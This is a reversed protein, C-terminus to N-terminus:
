LHKEWLARLEDLPEGLLTKGGAVGIQTFEAGLRGVREPPCALIVRARDPVDLEAGVGSWLAAEALAAEVGGDGVDHALSLLPAVRAVFRILAVEATLGEAHAAVIADGERWGRPVRRVDQVLGVCGVVPTPPIARGDTENYLSVNGSVVPVGLAEAAEAIGEIARALEWGIEPKEPNGFNLCDTLGLPEGAACAVNLAAGVVAQVGARWPDREGLRPGQLSVALGRLSPRLRLISADLGPRRVTRSGVLQDYQRYIWEKSALNPDDLTRPTWPLPEAAREEQEVEYRPCEDTLLRAPISGVLEGEHFARLEGTETVVGLVAHRLEWKEFVEEAQGLFDERLVAVMREQSESIMIEWAELDPERLPVRDLHVDIGMESAMEALSSALGAAGCDQLSEVLGREVLEMSAEILKKGTFPDGVQVSPRKDPAEEGLEQSALVSAGGIGDRGTTAGYLVVLHGATRAKARTLRETPLLGVCMANVLVNDRYAPDFRTEGGVNAVGVSNCYHGIGAVARRFHHDPAGFYLGDLVAVPRAGMAVIDRLIGGVGTAAGQFPEVASPHNHSEVKFAVAEGDGLDLVGANEGPGQLVRAGTSPLRRLLPASHKYGCHESWLLSFVALEFHNPERSLVEQIRDFEGDTLGLARHLPQEAVTSLAGV